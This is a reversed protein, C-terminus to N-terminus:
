ANAAKAEEILKGFVNGTAQTRDAQRAETETVIRRTAWGTRLGEADHLLLGVPHQREVYRRTNVGVYWAAVQPAELAGLRAVLNAIQGNVTANRAPPTGYRALYAASYADWTEGSPPRAPARAGDPREGRGNGRPRKAPPTASPKVNGQTADSGSPHPHTAEQTNPTPHQTIPLMSKADGDCGDVCQTPVHTRMANANRESWRRQASTRASESRKYIEALERDARRQHYGDELLVFFQAIVADVAKREAGSAARAMRYLKQRELPLARETVYYQDLLRTYAGDELMSLGVTDRIYDGAHKPYHNM